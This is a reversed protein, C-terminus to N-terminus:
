SGVDDPNFCKSYDPCVECSPSRCIYLGEDECLRKYFFKKWRMNRTNRAHLRPFNRQILASLEARSALGLDHWLHADGLCGASIIDAIWIESRSTRARYSLLLRRLDDRESVLDAPLAHHSRAPGIGSRRTFYYGLMDRFRASSLGMWRPLVGGGRSWTAVMQAIARRNGDEQFRPARM